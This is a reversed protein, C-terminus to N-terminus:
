LGDTDGPHLRNWNYLYDNAEKALHEGNKWFYYLDVYYGDDVLVAFTENSGEWIKKYSANFLGPPKRYLETEGYISSLKNDLDDFKGSESKGKFHYRAIYLATHKLDQPLEGNEDKTYAFVLEIHSVKRGAVMFESSATPEAEVYLVSPFENDGIVWQLYEQDKNLFKTLDYRKKDKKEWALKYYDKFADRVEEYTSGWPIDRFLIEKDYRAYAGLSFSSVFYCLVLLLSIVKKM